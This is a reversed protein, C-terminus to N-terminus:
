PTVLGMRVARRVLGATNHVGLKHMIRARHSAVTKCSVSLLTATEANSMGEAILQLTQRERETLPGGSDGEGKNLCGDVVIQSIAPSLYTAGAFVERICTMLEIVSQTKLIYGRVGADLAALVQESGDCMTLAVTRTEPAHRRIERAAEIGNMLPLTISLLAVNPHETRALRVAERGDGAIGAIEFGERELRSKLADLFMAQEDALELLIRTM